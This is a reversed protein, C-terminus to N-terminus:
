TLHIPKNPFIKVPFWQNEWEADLAKRNSHLFNSVFILWHTRPTSFEGSIESSIRFNQIHVGTQLHSGTTHPVDGLQLINCIIKNCKNCCITHIYM